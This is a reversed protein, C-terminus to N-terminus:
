LFGYGLCRTYVDYHQVTPCKTRYFGLLVTLYYITVETKM